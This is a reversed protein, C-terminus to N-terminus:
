WAFAPRPRRCRVWRVPALHLNCPLRGAIPAHKVGVGTGMRFRKRSVWPHPASHNRPRLGLEKAGVRGVWAHRPQPRLFRQRASAVDNKSQTLASGRLLLTSIELAEGNKDIARSPQTPLLVAIHSVSKGAIRSLGTARHYSVSAVIQIASSSSIRRRLQIPKVDLQADIIYEESLPKYL